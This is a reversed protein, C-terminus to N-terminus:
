SMPFASTLTLSVHSAPFGSAYIKKLRAVLSCWIKICVKQRMLKRMMEYLAPVLFSEAVLM